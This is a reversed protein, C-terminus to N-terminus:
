IYIKHNLTKMVPLVGPQQIILLLCFIILMLLSAPCDGGGQTGSARDDGGGGCMGDGGTQRWEKWLTNELNVLDQDKWM